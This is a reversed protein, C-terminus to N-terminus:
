RTWVRVHDVRMQSDIGTRTVAGPGNTFILHHPALDDHTVYSRVVRGDWYITNRGAERLVGYTHWSRAWTGAVPGSNDAGAASHYNSTARAGLGEVVDVEGGDPWDHGNTWWTPWGYVTTGSGPLWVRAEVYGATMEFGTTAGGWPDSSVVAGSRDAGVTLQLTGNAVRVNAASKVQGNMDTQGYWLDEWRDRDLATGDFEDRWTLHWSGPVGTPLPDAAAAPRAGMVVLVVAALVVLARGLM